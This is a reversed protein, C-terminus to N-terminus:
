TGQLTTALQPDSYFDEKLLSQSDTIKRRDKRKSKQYNEKGEGESSSASDGQKKRREGQKLNRYAAKMTM